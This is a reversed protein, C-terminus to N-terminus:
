KLSAADTRLAFQQEVALVHGVQRRLFAVDRLHELKRDDVVRHRDVVIQRKRQAIAAHGFGVDVAPHALRQLHGPKGFEAVALALAQGGVLLLLDREPAPRTRESTLAMRNSSGSVTM